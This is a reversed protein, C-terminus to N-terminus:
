VLLLVEPLKPVYEQEAENPNRALEDAAAGIKEFSGPKSIILNYQVFDPNEFVITVIQGVKVRFPEKSFKMENEVVKM